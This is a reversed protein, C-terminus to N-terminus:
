ARLSVDLSADGTPPKELHAYLQKEARRMVLIVSYVLALYFVSVTVYAEYFAFHRSAIVRAVGTLDMLTIISVLSTAQLQYVVENTYAPWALRIATPATILLFVPLRPLGLAYAAEITGKPVAGIAGRLIEASYAATNFSLAMVACFWPQRFATWLGIAELAARFQGSGYYILFIQALLPTGRFVLVYATAPWRLAAVRSLRALALPVALALGLISSIATLQLTVWAGGLLPLLSSAVIDLNM